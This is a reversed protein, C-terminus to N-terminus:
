PSEKPEIDTWEILREPERGSVPNAYHFPLPSIAPFPIGPEGRIPADLKYRALLEASPRLADAAHPDARTWGDKYSAM